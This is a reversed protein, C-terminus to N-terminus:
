VRAAGLMARRAKRLESRAQEYGLELAGSKAIVVLDCQPPFLDRNLRFVERLVRKIRNRGVAGAIKKTVTIGLRAPGEPRSLLVVVYHRTHVRNGERQVRLFDARRRLRV